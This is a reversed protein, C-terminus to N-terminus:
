RAITCNVSRSNETAGPFTIGPMEPSPGEAIVPPTTSDAPMSVIRVQPGNPSAAWVFAQTKLLPTQKKLTLERWGETNPKDPLPWWAIDNLLTPYEPEELASQYSSFRWRIGEPEFLLYKTKSVHTSITTKGDKDVLKPRPIHELTVRLDGSVEEPSETVTNV